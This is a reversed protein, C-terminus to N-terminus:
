QYQFEEMELDPEKRLMFQVEQIGGLLYCLYTDTLRFSANLIKEVISQFPSRPKKFSLTNNVWLGVSVLDFKPLNPNHGHTLSTVGNTGYLTFHEWGTAQISSWHPVRIFLVGGHKLSNFLNMILSDREKPYLHEIVHSAYIFDFSNNPLTWKESFNMVITPSSSSDFDVTTLRDRERPKFPFNGAGIDLISIAEEPFIDRLEIETWSRKYLPASYHLPDSRSVLKFAPSM